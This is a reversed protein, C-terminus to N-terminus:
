GAPKPLEFFIKEIVERDNATQKGAKTSSHGGTTRLISHKDSLQAAVIRNM